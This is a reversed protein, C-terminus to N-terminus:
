WSWFSPGGWGNAPRDYSRRFRYGANFERRRRIKLGGQPEKSMVVIFDTYKGTERSVPEDTVILSSGPGVVESIRELADKPIVIRELARKAGAVDAEVPAAGRPRRDSDPGAASQYMSLVSWRLETEAKGNGVATFVYSGLPSEADAITVDTEFLPERAQRVYLKQTKRSILVSIPALKKAAEKAEEVAATRAAEAAKADEILRVVQEQAPQVQAKLADLQAQAETLATQAAAKEEPARAKESTDEDDGARREAQRLRAEAKTKTVEARRVSKPLRAADARAKVVARRAEEAKKAAVAAVAQKAAAISRLSQRTKPPAADTAVTADVIGTSDKGDAVNGPTLSATVPAGDPQPKFLAPHAIEVPSIDDRVVIVRMGMKTREFLREAFAIPMRICGGSAPHGPLVGAHLAIGSWTIRQMYPMAADYYINSYHEVKKELVTFIGPPTEYGPKGTSVPSRLMAGDADYVTVRQQNISVIAMIPTGTPRIYTADDRKSDRGGKAVAPATSAALLLVVGTAALAAAALKPARWVRFLFCAM